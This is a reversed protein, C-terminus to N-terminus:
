PKDVCTHCAKAGMHLACARFIPDTPINQTGQAEAKGVEDKSEACIRREEEASLEPSALVTAGNTSVFLGTGTNKSARIDLRDDGEFLGLGAGTDDYLMVGGAREPRHLRRGGIVADPM